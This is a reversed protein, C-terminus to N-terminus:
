KDTTRNDRERERESVCVCMCNKVLIGEIKGNKDQVLKRVIEINIDAKQSLDITL